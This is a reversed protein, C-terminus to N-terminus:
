QGAAKETTTGPTTGANGPASPNLQGAENEPTASRVGTAGPGATGPNDGKYGSPEAAPGASKGMDNKKSEDRDHDHDSM